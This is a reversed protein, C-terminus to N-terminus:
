RYICVRKGTETHFQAQIQRDLSSDPKIDSDLSLHTKRHFQAQREKQALVHIQTEKLRLRFRENKELGVREWGSKLVGIRTLKIKNLQFPEMLIM